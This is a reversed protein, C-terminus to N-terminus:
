SAMAYWEDLTVAREADFLWAIGKKGMGRVFPYPGDGFKLSGDSCTVLENVESDNRLVAIGVMDTVGSYTELLVWIQNVVDDRVRALAENIAKEQAERKKCM